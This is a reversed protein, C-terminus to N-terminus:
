SGARPAPAPVTDPSRPADSLVVTTLPDLRPATRTGIAREVVM